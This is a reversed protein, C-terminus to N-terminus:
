PGNKVVEVSETMIQSNPERVILEAPRQQARECTKESIRERLVTKVVQVSKQSSMKPVELVGTRATRTKRSLFLSKEGSM